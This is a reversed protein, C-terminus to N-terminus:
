LHKVILAHIMKGTKSILVLQDLNQTGLQCKHLRTLIGVIPFIWKAEIQCTRIIGLIHNILYGVIPFQAENAKWWKLRDECSKSVL